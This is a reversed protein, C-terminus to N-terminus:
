GNQKEEEREIARTLIENPLATAPMRLLKRLQELLPRSVRDRETTPQGSPGSRRRKHWPCGQLHRQGRILKCTESLTCTM